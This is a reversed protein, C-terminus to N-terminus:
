PNFSSSDDKKSSSDDKEDKKESAWKGGRTPPPRGSASARRVWGLQRKVAPSSASGKKEGSITSVSSSPATSQVESADYVRSVGKALDICFDIESLLCACTKVRDDNIPLGNKTMDLIKKTKEFHLLLRDRDTKDMKFIAEGVHTMQQGSPVKKDRSLCISPYFNLSQAGKKGKKERRDREEKRQGFEEGTPYLRTFALLTEEQQGLKLSKIQEQMRSVQLSLKEDSDNWMGWAQGATCCRTLESQLLETNLAKALKKVEGKLTKPRVGLSTNINLANSYVKQKIPGVCAANGLVKSSALEPRLTLLAQLLKSKDGELAAAAIDKRAEKLQTKELDYGGKREGLWVIRKQIATMAEVFPDNPNDKEVSIFKTLLKKELRNQHILANMVAGLAVQQARGEDIEGVDSMIRQRVRLLQQKSLAPSDVKGELRVIEGQIYFMAKMFHRSSLGEQGGADGLTKEIEIIQNFKDNESSSDNKMKEIILVDTMVEDFREVDRVPCEPKLMGSEIARLRVEIAKQRLELQQLLNPKEAIMKELSPEINKSEANNKKVEASARGYDVSGGLLGENSGLTTTVENYLLPGILESRLRKILKVVKPLQEKMAGEDQNTKDQQQIIKSGYQQFGSVQSDFEGGEGINIFKQRIEFYDKPRFSGETIKKAMDQSLEVAVEKVCDEFFANGKFKNQVLSFDENSKVERVAQMCQMVPSEDWQKMCLAMESSLVSDCFGELNFMIVKKLKKIFADLNFSPSAFAESSVRKVVGDIAAVSFHGSKAEYRQSSGCVLDAWDGMKEKQRTIDWRQALSLLTTFKKLAPGEPEGLKKGFVQFYKGLNASFPAAYFDLNQSIKTAADKEKSKMRDQYGRAVTASEKAAVPETSSPASSSGEKQEPYRSGDSKLKVASNEGEGVIAESKQAEKLAQEQKSLSDRLTLLTKELNKKGTTGKSQKALLTKFNEIQKELSGIIRKIREERPEGKRSM